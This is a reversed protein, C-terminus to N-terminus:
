GRDLVRFSREIRRGEKDVLILRHFGPEPQLAIRHFHRTAAIFRDDLHWYVTADPERHVAQFVVQGLRGDLDIPVYIETGREPYILSM